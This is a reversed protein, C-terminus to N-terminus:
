ENGVLSRAFEGAKALDEANPRGKNIGGFLFLFSNKNFGATNFEGVVECGKSLLITRLAEHPDGFGHKLDTARSVGSTSFIFAKKGCNEPLREAAALLLGHHRQDFIGSGFGILAYNRLSEATAAETSLVDANLALAMEDAIKKTSGSPASLLVIARGTGAVAETSGMGVELGTAASTGDLGNGTAACSSLAGWVALGFFARLRGRAGVTSSRPLDGRAPLRM